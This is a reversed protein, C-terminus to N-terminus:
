LSPSLLRHVRRSFIFRPTSLLEAEPVALVEAAHALINKQAAHSPLSTVPLCNSSTFTERVSALQKDSFSKPIFRRAHLFGLHPNKALVEKVAGELVQQALPAPSIFEEVFPSSQKDFIPLLSPLQTLDLPQSLGALASSIQPGLFPDMKQSVVDVFIM